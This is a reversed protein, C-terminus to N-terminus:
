RRPETQSPSGSRRGAMRFTAPIAARWPRPAAPIARGAWELASQHDGRLLLADAMHETRGAWLRAAIEIDQPHDAALKELIAISRKLAVEAQPFKREMAYTHGLSQSPVHWSTESVKDGRSTRSRANETIAVARECPHKAALCTTALITASEAYEDLITALSEQYAIVEPYERALREAADLALRYEAEAEEDRSRFGSVAPGSQRQLM